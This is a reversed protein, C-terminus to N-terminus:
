AMNVQELGVLNIYDINIGNIFLQFGRKNTLPSKLKRFCKEMQKQLQKNKM